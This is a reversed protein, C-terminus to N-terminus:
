SQLNSTWFLEGSTTSISIYSVFTTEFLEHLLGQGEIRFCFHSLHKHYLHSINKVNEPRRQTGYRLVIHHGPSTMKARAQRTMLPPDANPSSLRGVVDLRRLCSEDLFGTFPSIHNIEVNRRNKVVNAPLFSALFTLYAIRMLFAYKVQSLLATRDHLHKDRHVSIEHSSCLIKCLRM